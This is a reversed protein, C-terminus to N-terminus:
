GQNGQKPPTGGGQNGQQPPTGGGQNGQRGSLVVARRALGDVIEQIEPAPVMRQGDFNIFVDDLDATNLLPHSGPDAAFEGLWENIDFAPLPDKVRTWD